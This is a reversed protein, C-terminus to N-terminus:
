DQTPRIAIGGPAERRRMEGVLRRVEVLVDRVIWVQRNLEPSPHLRRTVELEILLDTLNGCVADDLTDVADGLSVGAPDWHGAVGNDSM